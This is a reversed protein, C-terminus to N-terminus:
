LTDRLEAIRDRIRRAPMDEFDDVRLSAERLFGDAETASGLERLAISLNVLAITLRWGDGLERFITAAMRHFDAAQDHRGLERYAVGTVDFATAERSRDGIQRHMAAARRYNDLAADPKGLAVQVQGLEISWLADAVRYKNSRAIELAQSISAFADHPRGLARQVQSLGHLCDGECVLDGLRRYIVLAGLLLREAEIFEELELYVNALNNSSVAIWYPDQLEVSIDNAREFRSLAEHLRHARLSALGAANISDLQGPRDALDQRIAFAELHFRIGAETDAAQVHAKGLSTLIEAEAVRNKLHRAANLAITGTAFWDEFQNRRAYPVRLVAPLMWAIDHMEMGHAARVAAVLNVNEQDLWSDAEEYSSFRPPIIGDAPPLQIRRGQPFIAAVAANAAHLYWLFLRRTALLRYNEELSRAQEMSYARLLDHFQYRESGVEDLLYAGVLDDLIRSAQGM